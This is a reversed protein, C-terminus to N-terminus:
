WARGKGRGCLDAIVAADKGDHQSPVGDFTEAQDEVATASVRQGAVGADSLQQRLPNGYTGSSEMAATVPCAASLEKLKGVLLGLDGPTAARWPRQFSGDPWRVVAM